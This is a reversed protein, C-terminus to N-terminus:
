KGTTAPSVLHMRVITGSMGLKNYSVPLLWLGGAGASLSLLEAETTSTTVTRQKTIVTTRSMTGPQSRQMYSLALEVSIAKSLKLAPMEKLVLLHSHHHFLLTLMARRTLKLILPSRLSRSIRTKVFGFKEKKVAEYSESELSGPSLGLTESKLASQWSFKVKDIANQSGIIQLDDVHFFILVPKAKHLWLCQEETNPSVGLGHLASALTDYWLKPSQRFGYFAKKLKHVKGEEELGQPMYRYVNGNVNANLFAGVIDMADAELDFVAVIAM